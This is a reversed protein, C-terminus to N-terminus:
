SRIKIQQNTGFLYAHRYTFFPKNKFLNLIVGFQANLYMYYFNYDASLLYKACIFSVSQM